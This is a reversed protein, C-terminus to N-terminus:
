NTGHRRHEKGADDGVCQGMLIQNETVEVKRYQDDGHIYAAANDWREQQIFVDTQVISSLEQSTNTPSIEETAKCGSLLIIIFLVAVTHLRM